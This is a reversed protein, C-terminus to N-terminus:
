LWDTIMVKITPWSNDFACGQEIPISSFEAQKLQFYRVMEKQSDLGGAIGSINSQLYKLFSLHNFNFCCLVTILLDSLQETEWDQTVLTRLLKEMYFLNGFTFRERERVVSIAEVLLGIVKKLPADVQPLDLDFRIATLFPNLRNLYSQHYAFPAVADWSILHHYFERLHDILSLLEEQMRKADESGLRFLTDSIKSIGELHFQLYRELSSKPQESFVANLWAEQILIVLEHFGTASYHIDIGAAKDALLKEIEKLENRLM